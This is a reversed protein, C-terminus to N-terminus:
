IGFIYDIEIAIKQRKQLTIDFRAGRSAAGPMNRERLQDM